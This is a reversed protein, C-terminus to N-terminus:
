GSGLNVLVQIDGFNAENERPLAITKPVGLRRFQVTSGGPM